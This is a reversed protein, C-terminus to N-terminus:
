TQAVFGIRNMETEILMASKWSELAMLGNLYHAINPYQKSVNMNTVLGHIVFGLMFDAGTLRNELLFTKGDLQQNLYYFVKNFETEAYKNLFQLQTGKQQEMMNFVKLLYPVM